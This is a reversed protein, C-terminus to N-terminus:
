HGSVAELLKVGPAPLELDDESQGAAPIEIWREAAGDPCEQVVPFYLTEGAKLDKTLYVRLVFEDYEDDGLNGGSWVIEKVGESTPTGYYDYSKAYAGKVKELTWGAKPQPKVAIVGEPIQVRLVNTPKGECGHPVQLIARYTSGVPAEKLQLSVHALAASTGVALAAITVLTHKLM